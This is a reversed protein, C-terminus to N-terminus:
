IDKSITHSIYKGFHLDMSLIHNYWWDRIFKLVVKPDTSNVGRFNLNFMSIEYVYNLHDKKHENFKPYNLKQMLAEEHEFHELGYDTLKSLIQAFRETRPYILDVDIVENVLDFLRKHQNDITNNFLTLSETWVLKEITTNM